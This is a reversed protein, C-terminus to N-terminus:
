PVTERMLELAKRFDERDLLPRFAESKEVADANRYGRLADLVGQPPAAEFVTEFLRQDLLRGERYIFDRGRSFTADATM